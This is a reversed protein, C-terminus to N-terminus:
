DGGGIPQITISKSATNNGPTPDTVGGPPTVVAQNTVLGDVPFIVTLTYTISSGSPMTVTDSLNGTRTGTACTAGGTTTCSWSQSSPTPGSIFADAVTAGTVVVNSTINTVTITYVVPQGATYINLPTTKTIALNAQPPLVTFTPSPTITKSPTLSPTRSPTTTPTNSPTLTLTRSPTLSPTRSPTTSPTRSPTLTNTQSPTLSPTLTPTRSPTTSPTLTRSPTRSPTLTPTQSPTLTNTRSPTLSPTLTNTRSPTLSRTLTLSPTLTITRTPTQSPTRSPSPTNSPTLSPTRSPTLTQSPTLTTTRSPTLSPTLTRSPTLTISPTRSPTLSPTLSPTRSPTISPTLTFTATGVPTAANPLNVRCTTSDSLEVYSGNFDSVFAQSPYEAQLNGNTGDFDLWIAGTEGPAFVPASGWDADTRTAGTPPSDDGPSAQWMVVTDPSFASSGKAAIRALTMNPFYSKWGFNFSTIARPVTDNNRFNFRVVGFTQFAIFSLSYLNPDTCVQPTPTEPPDPPTGIGIDCTGGAGLDITFNIRGFNSPTYHTSLNAPGNVMRMQWTTNVGTPSGQAGALARNAYVPGIGNIWGVTSDNFISNPAPATSVGDYAWHPTGQTTIRMESPYISTYPNTVSWNVQVAEILVPAFNANTFTVKVYQGDLVIGGAISIDTCQPVPTSTATATSTPVPTRSPVPTESPRVTPTNTNGPPAPVTPVYTAFGQSPLELVRATRFSENIMVRRAQLQIYPGTGDNRGFGLPTVLPHNFYVVVEVFDGPGGPDYQNIGVRDAPNAYPRVANMDQGGFPVQEEVTCLRIGEADMEYDAKNTATTVHTRNNRYRPLDNDIRNEDTLSPRSSCVFVHFWGPRLSADRITTADRYPETNIGTGPIRLWPQLALGAAGVRAADTMSILRLIDQRLWKHEDLSPECNIGNWHSAFYYEDTEAGGGGDPGPFRWTDGGKYTGSYVFAGRSDTITCPVGDGPKQGDPYTVVYDVPLTPVQGDQFGGASDPTWPNNIDQFWTQNYQGTVAYRAATRAANQITVWAQFIRGFEIIAWILMLLIPLTLAFEVLTQGRRARKPPFGSPTRRRRSLRLTLM